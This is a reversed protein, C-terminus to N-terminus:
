SRACSALMRWKAPRGGIGPIPKQWGSSNREGSPSTKRIEPRPLESFLNTFQSLFQTLARSWRPSCYPVTFRFTILYLWTPENRPVTESRLSSIAVCASLRHNACLSCFPACFMNSSVDSCDCSGLSSSLPDRVPRTGPFGVGTATSSFAAPSCAVLSSHIRARLLLTRAGRLAGPGPPGGGKM